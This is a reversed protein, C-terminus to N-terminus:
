FIVTSPAQRINGTTGDGVQGFQNDGWCKVTSDLLLACTHSQGTAVSKVSALVRAPGSQVTTGIGLEGSSNSGWCYLNGDSRLACTHGGGAAGATVETVGTDVPYAVKSNASALLQGSANNGWCRLTRDTLVACTHSAGAFIQSAAPLGNVNTPATRQILTGDGLQGQENFGWCRVGGTALIACTHVDGAVLLSANTPLADVVTPLVRAQTTGDGCQGYDNRGWCKAAGTSFLACTHSGGAALRDAGTVSPVATPTARDITTGDGLRGEPNRGWCRVSGDTTRACTHIDGAIIETAQLGPVRTPVLRNTTTGDGLEGESNRGWCRVSADSFQACTHYNGAVLATPVVPDTCAGDVCSDKCATTVTWTGATCREANGSSCRVQGDACARPTADPTDASSGADTPIAPGAPLEDLGLVANCGLMSSLVAFLGRALRRM